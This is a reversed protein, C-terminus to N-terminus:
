AKAEKKRMKRLEKRAKKLADILETVQDEGYEYYGEREFTSTTGCSKMNIMGLPTVRIAVHDYCTDHVTITKM